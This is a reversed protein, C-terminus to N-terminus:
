YDFRITVGGNFPNTTATYKGTNSSTNVGASNFTQGVNMARFEVQNWLNYFQIQIRVSGGRGINVPIRRALTFDWNAWGPNRLVGPGSNGFSGVGNASDAVPRTFAAANFHARDEEPLSTDVEYGSDIPQGTLECRIAIGTFTPDNAAV